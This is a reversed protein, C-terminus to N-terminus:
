FFYYLRLLLAFAIILTLTLNGPKKIWKIIRDKRKGITKETKELDQLLEQADM